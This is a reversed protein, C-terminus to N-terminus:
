AEINFNETPLEVLDGPTGQKVVDDGDVEVIEPGDIETAPSQVHRGHLEPKQYGEAAGASADQNQNVKRRRWLWCALLLITVALAVGVGIGAKAGTSLQLDPELTEAIPPASTLPSSIAGSIGTSAILSTTAFAVNQRIAFPSSIYSRGEADTTM